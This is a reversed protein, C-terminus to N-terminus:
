RRLESRARTAARTPARGITAHDRRLPDGGVGRGTVARARCAGARHRSAFCGRRRSRGRRSKRWLHPHRRFSPRSLAPERCVPRSPSKTMAKRVRCPARMGAARLSIPRTTMDANARRSRAPRGALPLASSSEARTRTVGSRTAHASEPQAGTPGLKSRGAAITDGCNLSIL